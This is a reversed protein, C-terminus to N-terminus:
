SENTQKNRILYYHSAPDNLGGLEIFTTGTVGGNPNGTVTNPGPTFRPNGVLNRVVKYTVDGAVGGGTWTLVVNGAAKNKSVTLQIPTTVRLTGFMTGEHAPNSHIRCYYGDTVGAPFTLPHYFCTAAPPVDSPAVNGTEWMCTPDPVSCIGNTDSCDDSSSNHILSTSQWTICDGPEIKPNQPIYTLAGTMQVTMTYPTARNVCGAPPTTSLQCNATRCGAQALAPQAGALVLLGLATAIWRSDMVREEQFPSM